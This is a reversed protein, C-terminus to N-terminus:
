DFCLKWTRLQKLQTLQSNHLLRDLSAPPPPLPRQESVPRAPRLEELDPQLSRAPGERVAIM